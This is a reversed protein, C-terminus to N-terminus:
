IVTKIDLTWYRLNSGLNKYIYVLVDSDVTTDIKKGRRTTEILDMIKAIEGDFDHSRFQSRSDLWVIQAWDDNNNEVAQRPIYFTFRM